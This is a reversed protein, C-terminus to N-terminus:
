GPLWSPLCGGAWGGCGPTQLFPNSGRAGRCLDKKWACELGHGPDIWWGGLVAGLM